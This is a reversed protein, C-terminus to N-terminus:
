SYQASTEPLPSDLMIRHGFRRSGLLFPRKGLGGGDIMNITRRQMLGTVHCERVFLHNDDEQTSTNLREGGLPICSKDGKLLVAYAALVCYGDNTM